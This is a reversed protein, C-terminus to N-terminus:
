YLHAGITLSRHLCGTSSEFDLQSVDGTAFQGVAGDEARNNQHSASLRGADEM